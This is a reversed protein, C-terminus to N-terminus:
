KFLDFLLFLHSLCCGAVVVVVVFVFDFLCVAGFPKHYLRTVAVYVDGTM